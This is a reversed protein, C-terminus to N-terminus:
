PNEVTKEPDHSVLGTVEFFSADIVGQNGESQPAPGLGGGIVVVSPAFGEGKAHVIQPQKQDTFPMLARREDAMMEVAQRLTLGGAHVKLAEVAKAVMGLVAKEKAGDIDDLLLLLERRILGRIGDDLRNAQAEYAAVHGAAKAMVAKSHDGGAAKLEKATVLCLRASQMAATSGTVAEVYAKLDGARKGTSGKPRGRKRPAEGGGGM